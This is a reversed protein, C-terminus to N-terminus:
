ELMEIASIPRWCELSGNAESQGIMQPSAEAKLLFDSAHKRDARRCADGIVSIVDGTGTIALSDGTTVMFTDNVGTVAASSNATLTITMNNASLANNGNLQVTSNGSPSTMSLTDGSGNMTIASAGGAVVSINVTDCSADIVQANAAASSVAHVAITAAADTGPLNLTGVCLTWWNTPRSILISPISFNVVL